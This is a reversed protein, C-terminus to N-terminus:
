LVNIVVCGGTDVLQSFHQNKNKLSFLCLHIYIMFSLEMVM